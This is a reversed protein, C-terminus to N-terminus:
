KLMIKHSVGNITLVYAGAALSATNITVSGAKATVRPHLEMGNLDYLHIDTAEEVGTVTLEGARVQITGDEDQPISVTQAPSVEFTYKSVDEFRYRETDVAMVGDAITIVPEGELPFSVQEGSNLWLQLYKPSIPNNAHAIFSISLTIACIIHTLNPTTM